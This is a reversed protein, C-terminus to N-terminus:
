GLKRCNANVAARSPEPCSTRRSISSRSRPTSNSCEVSRSAMRIAANVKGSASSRVGELLPPRPQLAVARRRVPDDLDVTSDHTVNRAEVQVTVALDGIPDARFIPPAAHGRPTKLPA